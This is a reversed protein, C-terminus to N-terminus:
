TLGEKKAKAEAAMDQAIKIAKDEDNQTLYVYAETAKENMHSPKLFTIFKSEVRWTHFSGLVIHYGYAVNQGDTNINDDLTEYEEIRFSDPQKINRVACYLMAKKEELFVADVGYDSYAGSTVLYITM